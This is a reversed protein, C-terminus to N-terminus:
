KWGRAKAMDWRNLAVLLNADMELLLFHPLPKKWIPGDVIDVIVDPRENVIYDRAVLEDLANATLSYTGPLDVVEIEQGRHILRGAKKEVTVGPFNGVRQHLGTLRNFMETKGVNPNGILATRIM